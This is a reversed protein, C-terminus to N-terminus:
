NERWFHIMPDNGHYWDGPKLYLCSNTYWFTYARPKGSTSLLVTRNGHLAAIMQERSLEISDPLTFPYNLEYHTGYDYDEERVLEWTGALEPYNIGYTKMVQLVSDNFTTRVFAEKFYSPDNPMERYLILTDNLLQLPCKGSEEYTSYHLYSSDLFFRASAFSQIPYQLRFMSDKDFVLDIKKYSDWPSDESVRIEHSMERKPLKLFEVEDVIKADVLKWHGILETSSISNESTQAM